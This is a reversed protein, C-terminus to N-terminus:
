QGLQRAVLLKAGTWGIYHFLLLLIGSLACKCYGDTKSFFSSSLSGETVFSAERAM